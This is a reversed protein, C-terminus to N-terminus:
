GERLKRAINFVLHSSEIRATAHAGSQPKKEQVAPHTLTHAKHAANITLAYKSAWYYDDAVELLEEEVWWDAGSCYGGPVCAFDAGNKGVVFGCTRCTWQLVGKSKLPNEIPKLPDILPDISYLPDIM